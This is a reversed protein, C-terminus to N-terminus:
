EAAQAPAVPDATAERYRADAERIAADYTDIAKRIQEAASAFFGFRLVSEVQNRLISGALARDSDNRRAAALMRDIRDHDHAM